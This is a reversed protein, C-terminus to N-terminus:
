TRRSMDDHPLSFVRGKIYWRFGLSACRYRVYCQMEVGLGKISHLYHHRVRQHGCRDKYLTFWVPLERTRMVNWDELAVTLLERGVCLDWSGNEAGAQRDQGGVAAITDSAGDYPKITRNNADQFPGIYSGLM